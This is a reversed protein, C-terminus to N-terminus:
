RAAEPQAATMDYDIITEFKRADYDSVCTDLIRSARWTGFQTIM